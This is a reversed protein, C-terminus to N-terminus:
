LIRRNSWVPAQRKFRKWVLYGLADSRHTLTKDGNNSLEHMSMGNADEKWTVQEFDKILGQCRPHIRLRREGRHNRLLANVAGVRDSVPPNSEDVSYSVRIAGRGATLGDRVQRWNSRNSEAREQNGTADGFVEISTVKNAYRADERIRRWFERVVNETPTDKLGLEEIVHLEEHKEGRRLQDYTTVDVVQAIVSCAPDRNFDLSWLLPFSPNFDIKASVNEVRDFAYYVQGAHVNLYLGLAEQQFFREDYTNGLSEYYGRGGVYKNEYPRAQVAEYEAAHGPKIFLEYVWDFGRPTWVACGCLEKAKPDRIRAAMRRWADPKSYTLEDLAFWALNTGMLRLPDALSQFFVKSGCENLFISKESKSYRHPIGNTELFGLFTAQTNRTLMQYTPAGIVGACGSNVYALRLAEQCLANSKGSGVPGSFGKFRAKLHHFRLQSPLPRYRIERRM